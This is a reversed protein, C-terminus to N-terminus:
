APCRSREFCMSYQFNDANNVPRVLEAPTRSVAQSTRGVEMLAKLSYYYSFPSVSPSNRPGLEHAPSTICSCLCCYTSSSEPAIAMGSRSDQAVETVVYVARFFACEARGQGGADIECCPASADGGLLGDPQRLSSPGVAASLPLFWTQNAQHTPLQRNLWVPSSSRLNLFM